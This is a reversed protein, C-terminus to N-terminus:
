SLQSKCITSPVVPFHPLKPSASSAAELVSGLGQCSGRQPAVGCKLSAQLARRKVVLGPLSAYPEGAGM